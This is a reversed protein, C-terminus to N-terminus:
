DDFGIKRLFTSGRPDGHLPHLLPQTKMQGLKPDRQGHARELWALALDLEGRAAYVLAVRYAAKVQHKAILEHLAAESEAYRGAAQDIIARIRLREWEEPEQQAAAL